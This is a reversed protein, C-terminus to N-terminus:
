RAKFSILIINAKVKAEANKFDVNIHNNKNM